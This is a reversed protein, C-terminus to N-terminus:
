GPADSAEAMEEIWLGCVLDCLQERTIPLMVQTTEGKGRVTIWVQSPYDKISVTGETLVNLYVEKGIEMRHAVHQDTARLEDTKTIDQYKM